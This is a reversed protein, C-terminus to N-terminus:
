TIKSYMMRVYGDASPSHIYLTTIHLTDELIYTTVAFSSSERELMLGGIEDRAERTQTLPKRLQWLLRKM